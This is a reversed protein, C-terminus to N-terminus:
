PSFLLFIGHVATFAQSCRPTPPPQRIPVRRVPHVNAALGIGGASTCYGTAQAAMRRLRHGPHLANVRVTGDGSTSHGIHRLKCSPEVTLALSTISECEFQAIDAAPESLTSNSRVLSM